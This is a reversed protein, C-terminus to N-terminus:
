KKGRFKLADLYYLIKLSVNNNQSAAITNNLNKFYSRDVNNDGASIDNKWVLNIFSGPAFELTYVMDINFFNYNLDRNQNYTNNPSLSGDTNLTYFQKADAESWYHRATFNIGSRKNFNYKATITNEVTTLQRRSFIVDNGSIDAFGANNFSASIMTTQGISFKDSIRYRNGISLQQGNAKFLDAYGVVLNTNFSYKKASNTEIWANINLRNPTKFVRGAVRPEYFDNGKANFGVFFGVYWLNKMQGNINTNMNLSQYASPMFRRSYTLNYNLYLNNYWKGPKVWKYGVWLYHDLYNNNFMLGMDNYNYKNDSLEENLYTNLRGGTKGFGLSHLYGTMTKGNKYYLNSVSFKGNWNYVNKKDYFDFLGASVSADYEGDSRLVATNIFSVSSHNKLTQDFVLINYDTAPNTKIRREKGTSDEVDAYMPQTVANFFGVGLGNSTRGSIKTANVLRTELPNKVVFENPQLKNSVSYAYIPTGGIRRSYFLNGKNFLETGETFFSRNENYKVEFPTLNLVKNDSKVQGFDPVLTMDLTFSQSLGYKIDMGGNVSATTNKVGAIKYPYNNVYTSFYPTLSLRLPPDIKKIDTWDGEQNIFGNIKPDIPNWMLQQSTKSRKRVINLGWVQGDKKSFRLASYPIRMEFTWGDKQIKANSEWVANWTDDENGSNSYKADYQEGSVTVYFGVANIKDHYTDFIVGLFDNSGVKDRGVLERSINAISQEHCYGGVYINSNDYLIYVETKNEEPKGANPRWEIFDTAVPASKWAEEDLNGDIKFTTNTSQAHLQRPTQAFSVTTTMLSILLLYTKM